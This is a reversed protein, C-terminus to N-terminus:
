ILIFYFNTIYVQVVCNAEKPIPAGTNIFVCEGRQLIRLPNDGAAVDGCVTRRGKGDEAFCAYGDKISADFPPFPENARIDEAATYGLCEAVDLESTCHVNNYKLTGIILDMATSVEIMPYPSHRIRGSPNEKKHHHHHHCGKNQNKPVSQENQLENHTKKVVEKNENLLALAHPLIGKIVSYCERVAKLSGPFNIILTSKRIGSMLRSLAAMPTIQLSQVLLATSIGNAEKDIVKRTAEPTVDRNAFGTGGTTIILNAQFVDSYYKLSTSIVDVDDPIILSDVEANEFSTKLSDILFPGSTDKNQGSSCTDSVTIVVFKKSDM